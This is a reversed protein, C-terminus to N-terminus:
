MINQKKFQITRLVFIYSCDYKKSISLVGMGSLSDKYIENELEPLGKARLINAIYEENKNFKNSLTRIDSGQTYLKFINVDIESVVTKKSSSHLKKMAMYPLKKVNPIAVTVTETEQKKNKKQGYVNLIDEESYGLLGVNKRSFGRRKLDLLKQKIQEKM